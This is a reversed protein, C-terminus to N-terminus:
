EVLKYDYYTETVNENIKKFVMAKGKIRTKTEQILTSGTEALKDFIMEVKFEEIKVSLMPSLTETIYMTMKTITSDIKNLSITCTLADAMKDDDDGDINFSYEINNDFDNIVSFNTMDDSGMSISKNNNEGSNSMEKYFAKLDKKGPENGNVSVLKWCDSGEKTPDYSMVRNNETTQVVKTYSYQYISDAEMKGFATEIIQPTQAFILCTFILIVVSVKKLKNM